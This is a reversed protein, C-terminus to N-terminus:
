HGPTRAAEPRLAPLLAAPDGDDGVPPLGLLRALLPYVDVNDVPPLTFGRRFSPGHAIFIARMSPEAPDFGHSGRRGAPRRALRERPLADWGTDMQCVIPPVRPHRGYQWRAPLADRRWCTYHDHRGLLQREAAAERGPRPRFGVVQGHSIEIADAPDVMDEVAVVQGDPVEAMGHDSVVVIDTRAAAGSRELAARLAGIAADVERMAARMQPSGPGHAHAADDPHEFYLLALRPRTAEPEALWGAVTRVREDIPRSADFLHWRTPRVGQVPAESGPWALVATPMGAREATVWLPEGGWWRGDGVADRLQLTFRGLAPDHMTNHVIGHRDPRLGTVITYHNPFTLVPYSPVMWQARVGERALRELHPTDGRALDDPHVGDLSVLLLSRPAAAPRSSAPPSSPTACAALSLLWALVCLHRFMKM